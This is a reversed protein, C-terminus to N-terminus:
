VPRFILLVPRSGSRDNGHLQSTESVVRKARQDTEAQMRCPQHRNVFDRLFVVNRLRVQFLDHMVETQSAVDFRYPAADTAKSQRSLWIPLACTQVGMVLACM